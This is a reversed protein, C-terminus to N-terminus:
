ELLRRANDFRDEECLSNGIQGGQAAKFTYSMGGGILIADVKRCLNEIIMLKDSVKAGGLIAVKPADGQSLANNANDIEAQM